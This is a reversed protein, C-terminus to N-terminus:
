SIASAMKRPAKRQFGVPCLRPCAIKSFCLTDFVSSIKALLFAALIISLLLDPDPEQFIRQSARLRECKKLAASFVRSPIKQTVPDLSQMELALFGRLRRRYM